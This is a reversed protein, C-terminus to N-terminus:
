GLQERKSGGATPSFRRRSDRSVAAGGGPRRKTATGGGPCRATARSGCRGGHWRAVM